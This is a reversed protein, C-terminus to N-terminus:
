APADEASRQAARTVTAIAVGHKRAARACAEYEPKWSTRGDPRRAVKVRIPGYETDVTTVSRPLVFREVQQVRVGLATSESLVLRALTEAEGPPALVRLAHGARGKKMVIPALSADLAGAEHLRELLFALHEPTM